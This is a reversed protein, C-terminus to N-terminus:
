PQLVKLLLKKLREDETEYYNIREKYESNMYFSWGFITYVAGVILLIAGILQISASVSITLNDNNDFGFAILLFSIILLFIGIKLKFAPNKDEKRKRVYEERELELSNIGSRIRMESRHREKRQNSLMEDILDERISSVDIYEHSIEIDDEIKNINNISDYFKIQIDIPFFKVTGFSVKLISPLIDFM